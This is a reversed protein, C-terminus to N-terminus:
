KQANKRERHHAATPSKRPVQRTADLPRAKQPRVDMGWEPGIVVLDQSHPWSPIMPATIPIGFSRISFVFGALLTTVLALGPIGLMAAAGIMVFKVLRAVLGLNYNPIAFSGLGAIAVVVVLIPSVIGAQVAAQGLIVAGVIGITPGILSPIRVGAERILEFSAEMFVVELAAPFPVSERSRAIAFLLETPIMEPHYTVAAVYLASAYLTLLLAVWRVLRLVTAPVFHIYYDESSHMLAWLCVPVVIAAPSGDILAVHGESLLAAVRDPRETLITKPFPNWPQDEILRELMGTSTIADTRIGALRKRVEDVLKPNAIGELYLIAVPIHTRAGIYVRETVLQPTSLHSRILWVNTRYNEVFGTHPGRVVAEAPSEEIARHEYFRVDAILSRDDGDLLVVCEGEVIAAVAHSILRGTRVQVPSILTNGVTEIDIQQPVPQTNLAMLPGLISQHLFLSDVLGQLLILAGRQFGRGSRLKFERVVLDSNRPAHFIGVVARLNTDLDKSLASAMVQREAESMGGFPSRAPPVENQPIAYRSTASDLSASLPSERSAQASTYPRREMHRGDVVDEGAGPIGPKGRKSLTFDDPRKPKRFVRKVKSWVGM